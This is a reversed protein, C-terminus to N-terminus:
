KKTNFKINWNDAFEKCKDLMLQGHIPSSFLLNLDDCYSIINIDINGIKAGLNLKLIQEVLEDM